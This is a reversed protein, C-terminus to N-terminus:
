KRFLAYFAIAWPIITHILSIILRAKQINEKKTRIFQLAFYFKRDEPFEKFWDYGELLRTVEKIKRLMSQSSYASVKNM